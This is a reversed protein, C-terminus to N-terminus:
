RASGLDVQPTNIGVPLLAWDMAAWISHVRGSRSISVISELTNQFRMWFDFILATEVRGERIGYWGAVPPRNPTHFASPASMSRPLPGWSTGPYMGQTLKRCAVSYVSRASYPVSELSFAM